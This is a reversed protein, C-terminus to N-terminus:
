LIADLNFKNNLKMVPMSISSKKNSSKHNHEISATRSQFSIVCRLSSIFYISFIACRYLAIQLCSKKPTHLQRAIALACANENNM